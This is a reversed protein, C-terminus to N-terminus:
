FCSFQIALHGSARPEWWTSDSTPIGAVKVRSVTKLNEVRSFCGGWQALTQGRM